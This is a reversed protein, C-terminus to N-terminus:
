TQIMVKASKSRPLTELDEVSCGRVQSQDKAKGRGQVSGKAKKAEAKARPSKPKAKAMSQHSQSSDAQPKKVDPKWYQVGGVLVYGKDSDPKRPESKKANTQKEPVLRSSKPTGMKAPAAAPPHFVHAAAPPHFVEPLGTPVPM